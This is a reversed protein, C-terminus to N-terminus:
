DKRAKFDLRKFVGNELKSYTFSELTLGGMDPQSFDWRAMVGQYPQRISTCLTERSPDSGAAAIKQALMTLADWGAAEFHKPPYGHQKRFLEVFEKQHPLPDESILFEAHIVNNAADGMAKVYQYTATGHVSIIPVDLRVQHLSRFPVASTSLVFVADPKSARILAAQPTADTAAIEFKEVKSFKVGYEAGLNQMVNWIVQGYGSDHLVAVNKAGIHKAYSLLARANLAQAPTLHFVCTRQKEVEPGLGTFAVIPLKIPQTIAGVGVTQAIGTPGIVALVNNEHILKNIKPIAADPNSGDDELIIKIPRGNIGGRENIVKAAFLVGDREPIGVGALGGTVSLLAGIQIPDSSSSQALSQTASLAVLAAVSFSRLAKELTAVM